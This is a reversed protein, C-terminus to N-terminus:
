PWRWASRRSGSCSSARRASPLGDAHRLPQLGLQEYEARAAAIAQQDVISDGMNGMKSKAEDLMDLIQRKEIAGTQYAQMVQDLDLDPIQSAYHIAVLPMAVM